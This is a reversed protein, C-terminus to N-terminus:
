MKKQLRRVNPPVDSWIYGSKSVYSVGSTEDGSDESLTDSLTETNEIEDITEIDSADSDSEYLIITDNMM